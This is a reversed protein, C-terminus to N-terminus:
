FIFTVISRDPGGAGEGALRIDTETAEAARCDMLVMGRSEM